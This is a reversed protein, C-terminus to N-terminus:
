ESEPHVGGSTEVVVPIFVNRERECAEMHKRKKEHMAKELAGGPSNLTDHIHSPCTPSVITVDVTVKKGGCLRHLVLDGPHLLSTHLGQEIKVPVRAKRALEAIVQVIANHKAVRQGSTRCTIDHIGFPNREVNCAQCNKLDPYIPMM